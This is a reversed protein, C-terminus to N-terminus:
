ALAYRLFSASLDVAEEVNNDEDIRNNSVLSRTQASRGPEGHYAGRGVRLRGSAGSRTSRHSGHSALMSERRGEEEEEELGADGEDEEQEEADDLLPSRECLDMSRLLVPILASSQEALSKM